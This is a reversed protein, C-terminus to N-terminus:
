LYDYQNLQEAVWKGKIWINQRYMRVGNIDIVKDRADTGTGRLFVIGDKSKPWNPASMPLNTKPSYRQEGKANLVPVDALKGSFVLERIQIWLIRADQQLEGLWLRKFGLFRNNARDTENLSEEFVACIISTDIFLSGFSSDEFAKESDLLDNFDLSPELKLDETRGGKETLTITSCTISSKAFLGISSIRGPRHTFMRVLIKETLSKASREGKPLEMGVEKALDRISWNMYKSRLLSLKQDLESMSTISSNDLGKEGFRAEAIATVFSNKFRFRPNNPYKPSTDLYLLERNILTSLQPLLSEKNYKLAFEVFDRVMNWDNELRKIDLESWVHFDYGEIKFSAYQAFKVGEGPRVYLYYVILLHEVKHWFASHYFTEGIIEEPSVATISMPEKARWGRKSKPSSILGTVKLETPVGDVLMDPRKNPNAPYGIVSQEFVNGLDGKNTSSKSLVNKSDIEGFTKGVTCDLRRVLDAMTIRFPEDGM